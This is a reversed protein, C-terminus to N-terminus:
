QAWMEKRIIKGAVSHSIGFMKGLERHTYGGGKYLERIKEVEARTLKHNGHREGRPKLGLKVSRITNEKPTVWELNSVRNDTKIGNKHDIQHGGPNPSMFANAVILHIKTQKHKGQKCLTIQLYGYREKSPTIIRPERKLEYGFNHYSRIRGLNSVDYLGEYEPVPLWVEKQTTM